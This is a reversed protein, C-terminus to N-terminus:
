GNIIRKDTIIMNMKVDHPETPVKDFIQEEYCLAIKYANICALLKDYYGKGFGLRNMNLDFALGPVIVLDIDRLDMLRANNTITPEPISFIGKSLENISEIKYVDLGKRYMAIKPVSLVIENDLCHQIIVRTDVESGTSVYCFVSRSNIFRPLGLLHNFIQGNKKQRKKYDIADRLAISNRRLLTKM